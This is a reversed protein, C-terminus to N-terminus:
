IIYHEMNNTPLQTDGSVLVIKTEPKVVLERQLARVERAFNVGTLEPM